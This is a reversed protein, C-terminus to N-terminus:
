LNFSNTNLLKVWNIIGKKDNMTIYNNNLGFQIWKKTQEKNYVKKFSKNLVRENM